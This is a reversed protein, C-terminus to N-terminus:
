KKNTWYEDAWMIIRLISLLFLIACMWSYWYHRAGWTMTTDFQGDCSPSWGGTERYVFTRDGFFGSSQLYDSFFTMMMVTVFLVIVNTDLIMIFKASRTM